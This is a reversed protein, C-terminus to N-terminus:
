GEMSQLVLNRVDNDVDHKSMYQEVAERFDLSDIGLQKLDEIFSSMDEESKEFEEILSEELWQDQSTDLYHPEITGDEYILGVMPKYDREDSKRCMLTGCNMITLDKDKVIFGKHNDGFIATTYGKLQDRYKAVRQSQPAGPYAHGKKWIYAHCMAIDIYSETNSTKVKPHIDFGWPFAHVCGYGGAINTYEHGRVDQIVHSLVLSHYATQDIADYRHEPLDHQGPVAFIGWGDTRGQQCESFQDITWNILQPTKNAHWKDFVDGAISISACHEKSLDVVERWARAQAAYWDPEASRAVPPNHCFHVDSCAVAIVNPM